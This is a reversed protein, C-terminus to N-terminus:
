LTEKFDLMTLNSSICEIDLEDADFSILWINVALMVDVICELLKQYYM